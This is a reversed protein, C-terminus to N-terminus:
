RKWTEQSVQLLGKVLEEVVWMLEEEVEIFVGAGGKGGGGVSASWGDGVAGGEGNIWVGGDVVAGIWIDREFAGLFVCEREVEGSLFFFWGVIGVIKRLDEVFM